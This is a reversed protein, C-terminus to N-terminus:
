RWGGQARRAVRQYVATLAEIEADASFRTRVRECARAGMAALRAPADPGDLARALTSTLLDSRGPEVLYGTRESEPAEIVLEPLGGVRSAVVPVGRAMAELAAWPMGEHYSPLVLLHAQDIWRAVEDEGVWGTITVVPELQRSRALAWLPDRDPGDGVLIVRLGPHRGRLREAAELLLPLGKVPAIRGVAVLTPGPGPPPLRPAEPVDVGPYLVDIPAAGARRYPALADATAQSVATTASFHSSLLRYLTALVKRRTAPLHPVILAGEVSSMVPLRTFVAALLGVLDSGIFLTHILDIRHHRLAAVTERVAEQPARRRPDLGPLRVRPLTDPLPLPAGDEEEPSFYFL